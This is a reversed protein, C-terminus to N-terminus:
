EGRAALRLRIMIEHLRSQLADMEEVEARVEESRPPVLPVNCVNNCIDRYVRKNRIGFSSSGVSPHCPSESPAPQSFQM